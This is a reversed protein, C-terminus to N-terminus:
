ETVVLHYSSTLLEILYIGTSFLTKPGCDRKPSLSSSIQTSQGWFSVATQELLTLLGVESLAM